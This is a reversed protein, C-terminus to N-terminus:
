RWLIRGPSDIGRSIRIAPTTTRTPHPVDPGVAAFTGGAFKEPVQDPKIEVIDPLPVRSSVSVWCGNTNSGGPIPSWSCNPPVHDVDKGFGTFSSLPVTEPVPQLADTETANASLPGPLHANFRVPVRVPVGDILPVYVVDPQATASAPVNATLL